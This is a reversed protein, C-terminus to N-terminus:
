LRVWSIDEVELTRMMLAVKELFAERQRWTWDLFDDPVEIEKLHIPDPKAFFANLAVKM